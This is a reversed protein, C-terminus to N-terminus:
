CHQLTMKGIERINPHLQLHQTFNLAQVGDDDDSVPFKARSVTGYHSLCFFIHNLSFKQSVCHTYKHAPLFFFIRNLSFFQSVCHRYQTHLSFIAISHLCTLVFTFPSVRSLSPYLALRLAATRTCAPLPAATAPPRRGPAVMCFM